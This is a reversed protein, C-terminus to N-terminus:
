GAAIQYEHQYDPESKKIHKKRADVESKLETTIENCDSVAGSETLNQIAQQIPPLSQAPISVMKGCEDCIDVLVNDVEELGASLSLTVKTLTSTVSKECYACVSNIKAGERYDIM